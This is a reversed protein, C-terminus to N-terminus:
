FWSFQTLVIDEFGFGKGYVDVSFEPHGDITLHHVRGGREHIINVDDFSTLGPFTIEMIDQGDQWDIVKDHSAYVYFDFVDRGAGGYLIDDDFCGEIYDNGAGGKMVDQGWEGCIADSGSTGIMTEDADTGRMENTAYAKVFIADRM